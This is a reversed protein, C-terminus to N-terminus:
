KPRICVVEGDFSGDALQSLHLPEPGAQLVLDQADLLGKGDSNQYLAGIHQFSKAGDYKVAIFDGPRIDKQWRISKDPEGKVLHFRAVVPLRTVLSAVNEDKTLAKGHSLYFATMLAKSCDIGIYNSSQYPTSGFIAPVNFLSSLYGLYGKGDRISIRFVEPSLGKNDTEELGPSSETGDPGDIEAQFWFSGVDNRYFDTATSPGCGSESFPDIEWQDKLSTLECRSYNIKEYGLWHYAGPNWPWEANHYLKGIDPVIKFWRISADARKAVRLRVEQGKLPYIAPNTTWEGDAVQSEITLAWAPPQPFFLSAALFLLSLPWYRSRLLAEGDHVVDNLEM